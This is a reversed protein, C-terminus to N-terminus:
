YYYRARLGIGFDNQKEGYETNADGVLFLARFRLELNKIGTYVLEPGLSFSSDNLNFISTVMPTFYLVEFPEKQSIRLYLYDRMPNRRGYTENTTGSASQLLSRDGSTLYTNYGQAIFSYFDEMESKTYGMGNHYYELIYTTEAQSLYRIGWLHSTADYERYQVTGSEDIFRQVHDEIVAVEGHVEVNSTINRSFDLGYRTTKSEGTLLNFDIDTDYLLFYAKGAFNLGNVKALDSNLDDYVPVLAPTLSFTQLPGAFSKIYDASAVVVGERALEPDFPDKPRDLFAVPNWAYGKGWKLTKKGLSYGFSSSPRSAMFGEFLKADLFWGRSDKKMDANVVARFETSGKKYGGDLLTGLNYEDHLRGEDSDYSNLKYFAADENRHYLAPQFEIYGGLHWPTEEIETMDFSYEEEAWGTGILFMFGLVFSRWPRM